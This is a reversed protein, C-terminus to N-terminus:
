MTPQRPDSMFSHQLVQSLPQRDRDGSQGGDLAIAPGGQGSPLAFPDAAKAFTEQQQLSAEEELYAQYVECGRSSLDGLVASLAGLDLAQRCAAAVQAREEDNLASDDFNEFKTTDVETVVQTLASDPNIGMEEYYRSAGPHIPLDTKVVALDFATEGLKGKTGRFFNANEFIARTILYIVEEDVDKHALIQASKGQDQFAGEPWLAVVTRMPELLSLSRLDAGVLAIEVDSALLSALRESEDAMEISSLEIGYQPKLTIQGMAWLETGFTFSDSGPEGVAMSVAHKEQAPALTAASCSFIFVCAVTSLRKLM